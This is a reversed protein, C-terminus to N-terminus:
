LPLEEIKIIRKFQANTGVNQTLQLVQLAELIINVNYIVNLRMSAAAQGDPRDDNEVLGGFEWRAVIVSNAVVRLSTAAGFGVAWIKGTIRARKGAAVTIIIAPTVTSNIVSGAENINQSKNKAIIELL